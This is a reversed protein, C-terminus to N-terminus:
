KDVRKTKLNPESKFMAVSLYSLADYVVAQKLKRKKTYM